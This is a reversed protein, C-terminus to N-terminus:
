VKENFEKMKEQDQLFAVQSVGEVRLDIEFQPKKDVVPEPNRVLKRKNTQDDTTYGRGLNARGNLDGEALRCMM